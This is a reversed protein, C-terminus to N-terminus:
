DPEVDLSTHRDRPGLFPYGLIVSGGRGGVFYVDLSQTTIGSPRFRRFDATDAHDSQVRSAELMDKNRRGPLWGSSKCDGRDPIALCVGVTGNLGQRM